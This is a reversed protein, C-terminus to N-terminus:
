ELGYAEIKTLLTQRSIGLRRATRTRNGNEESLVRRIARREVNKLMEDLHLDEGKPSRPIGDAEDSCGRVRPPVDEERIYPGEAMLMAHQMANELERVNGPWDYTRLLEMASNTVAAISTGLWANFRTILHDVLPPIDDQRDRLPPIHIPFVSLRYYLDERFRGEQVAKWPDQNTACLIRVDVPIADTGGLRTIEKEQLVRLLKSQASPSLECVEDLLLTGGDAEEFRGIRRARADTYAGREHGFFEDEVL